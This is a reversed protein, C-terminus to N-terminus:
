RSRRAHHKVHAASYAQKLWAPTGEVIYRFTISRAEIAVVKLKSRPSPLDTVAQWAPKDVARVEPPVEYLQPVAARDKDDDESGKELMAIASFAELPVTTELMFRSDSNPKARLAGTGRPLHEPDIDLWQEFSCVPANAEGIGHRRLKLSTLNPSEALHRFAVAESFDVSGDGKVPFGEYGASEVAVVQWARGGGPRQRCTRYGGSPNDLVPLSFTQRVRQHRRGAPRLNFRDAWVTALDLASIAEKNGIAGDVAPHSLFKSWERNLPPSLKVSPLSVKHRGAFAISAGGVKLIQNARLALKKRDVPKGQLDSLESLATRNITCYRLADLFQAVQWETDSSPEHAVKHLLEFIRDRDPQLPIARRRDQSLAFLGAADNASLTERSRLWPLLTELWREVVTRDAKADFKVAALEHANFGVALTGDPKVWLPVFREAYQSAKFLSRTWPRNVRFAPRREVNNVELRNPLLRALWDPDELNQEPVWTRLPNGGAAVRGAMAAFALAADIVHSGAAQRDAKRYSADAQALRERLLYGQEGSPLKLVAVSAISIDHRELQRRLEAVFQRAWWAQTGNVRASVRGSMLELARPVLEPIFLAHRMAKQDDASLERFSTFRVPSMFLRNARESIWRAAAAADPTGFQQQLYGPALDALGYSQNGKRRNGESSVYILNAESNIITGRANRTESRPLIHDLEGGAALPRGTYACVGCAAERIRDVRELWGAQQKDGLSEARKFAKSQRKIAAKDAAFRFANQELVIPLHIREGPGVQRRIREAHWRAAHNAVTDMAGRIHGDFPRVSDAPLRQANATGGSETASRWANDKACETCSRGFGHIDVYLLNAIQALSFINRFKDIREPALNFNGGIRDATVTVERALKLLSKDDKDAMSASERQAAVRLAEKLGNGHEKQANACELLVGRLRRNGKLRESALWVAFNEVETEDMADLGLIARLLTAKQRKKLPPHKGCVDLLPDVSEISWVGRRAAAADRFYHSALQLFPKLHQSGVDRELQDRATLSEQSLTDGREWAAALLRLRYPDLAASRDLLRHLFRADGAEDLPLGSGLKGNFKRRLNGIAIRWEPWQLALKSPALLLNQCIPPRRNNQNEFPPITQDPDLELLIRDAPGSWALLQQRRVAIAQDGRAQWRRVWRRFVRDFRERDWYDGGDKMAPDNFYWRLARLQLNSLHGVVRALQEPSVELKSCVSQGPQANALDEAIERFYERRHRHGTRLAKHFDKLVKGVLLLQAVAEDRLSADEIRTGLEKNLDRKGLHLLPEELVADLREGDTSLQGIQQELDASDNFHDPLLEALLSPDMSEFAGDSEEAASMFTFGRRKLLGNLFERERPELRDIRGGLLGTVLLPLMRRALKRRKHGRRQHRHTRRASQDWWGLADVPVKVLGADIAGEIPDEGAEYIFSALGTNCAGLDVGLACVTPETTETRITGNM